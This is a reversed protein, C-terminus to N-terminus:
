GDRITRGIGYFTKRFTVMSSVFLLKTSATTFSSSLPESSTDTVASEVLPRGTSLPVTPLSMKSALILFSLDYVSFTVLSSGAAPDVIKFECENGSSLRNWGRDDPHAPQEFGLCVKRELSGQGACRDSTRRVAVTLPNSHISKERRFNDRRRKIRLNREIGSCGIVRRCQEIQRSRRTDINGMVPQALASRCQRLAICHCTTVSYTKGLGRVQDAAGTQKGANISRSFTSRNLIRQM